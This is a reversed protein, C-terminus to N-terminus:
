YFTHKSAGGGGARCGPVLHLTLLSVLGVRIGYVPVSCRYVPPPPAAARTPQPRNMTHGGSVCMSNIRWIIYCRYIRQVNQTRRHHQAYSRGLARPANLIGMIDFQKDFYVAAPAQRRGWLPCWCCRGGRGSRESAWRKYPRPRRRRRRWGVSIIYIYADYVYM